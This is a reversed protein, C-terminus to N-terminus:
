KGLFARLTINGDNVADNNVISFEAYPAAIVSPFFSLNVNGSSSTAVGSNPSFYVAADAALVSALTLTALIQTSGDKDISRGRLNFSVSSGSVIDFFWVCWSFPTRACWPVINGVVSATAAITRNNFGLDDPEYLLGGSLQRM